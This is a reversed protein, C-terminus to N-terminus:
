FQFIWPNVRVGECLTAGGSATGLWKKEKGFILIKVM